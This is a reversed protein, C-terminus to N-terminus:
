EGSGARSKDNKIVEGERRKQDERWKNILRIIALEEKGTLERKGEEMIKIIEEIDM